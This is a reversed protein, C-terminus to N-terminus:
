QSVGELSIHVDPKTLARAALTSELQAALEGNVSETRRLVTVTLDIDALARLDAGSRWKASVSVYEPLHRARLFRQAEWALTAAISVIFLDDTTPALSYASPDVLDLIHGRVSARFGASQGRPTVFLTHDAVGKTSKARVANM